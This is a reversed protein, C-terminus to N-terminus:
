FMNVILSTYLEFCSLLCYSFGTPSSSQHKRAPNAATRAMKSLSVSFYPFGLDLLNFLLDFFCLNVFLKNSNCSINSVQAVKFVYFLLVFYSALGDVPLV